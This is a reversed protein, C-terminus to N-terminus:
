LDFLDIPLFWLSKVSKFRNTLNRGSLASRLIIGQITERETPNAIRCLLIYANTIRQFKNYRSQLDRYEWRASQLDARVLWDKRHKRHKRHSMKMCGRCWRETSEMKETHCKNKRIASRSGAKSWYKKRWWKQPYSNNKTVKCESPCFCRLPPTQGFRIPFLLM